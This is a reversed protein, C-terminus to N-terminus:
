RYVEFNDLDFRSYVGLQNIRNTFEDVLSKLDASPLPLSRFFDPDYANAARAADDHDNIPGLLKDAILAYNASLLSRCRTLDRLDEILGPMSPVVNGILAFQKRISSESLPDERDDGADVGRDDRADGVAKTYDEVPADAVSDQATPLITSILEAEEKSPRVRDFVTDLPVSSLMKQIIENRMAATTSM